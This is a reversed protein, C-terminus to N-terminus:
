SILASSTRPVCVATGAKDSVITRIQALGELVSKVLVGRV